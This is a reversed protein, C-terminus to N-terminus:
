VKTYRSLTVVSSITALVIAVAVLYPAISWVNNTDIYDVFTVSSGLWDTVFYRM